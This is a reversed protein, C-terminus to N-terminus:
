DAKREFILKELTVADACFWRIDDALKKIATEDENIERRFTVESIQDTEETQSFPWPKRSLVGDDKSLADFIASSITFRDSGGLAEVQGVTVETVVKEVDTNAAPVENLALDFSGPQLAKFLLSLNTTCDQPKLRRVAEPDGTYAIVVSMNRLQDPKSTM